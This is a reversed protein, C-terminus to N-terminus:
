APVAPGRVIPSTVAVLAALVAAILPVAVPSLAALLVLLAAAPYALAVVGRQYPCIHLVWVTVLYVAVPVAVALGAARASLHGDVAAALGAGVAAASAFILYHGYGWLFAMRRSTLLEGASRDFYLWWMGFVIVLGAGALVLRHGTGDGADLAGQAAMATALVSEGLVILTFLGYREAVHDRHYPTRSAREAVIPVALEAVGLVVFSPWTWAAPLALRAVWAVQVLSVGLAFRLATRRRDRDGHAARLWQGVLAVRMVVYGLTAVRFDAHDFARPVGAALVLAGAIQVLTTLRYPGDDTDYASAFWTFNVWAWWIAFFVAVYGLVAHGPRHEGLAHRLADSAEAVAVVFCLDFLLELPTAARHREASNRGTMRRYWTRDPATV